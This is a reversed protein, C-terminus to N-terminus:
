VVGVGDVKEQVELGGCLGGSAKGEGGSLEVAGAGVALPVAEIVYKVEEKYATYISM